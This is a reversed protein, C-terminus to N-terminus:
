RCTIEKNMWGGMRCAESRPGLLEELLPVVECEVTEGASLGHLLGRQPPKGADGLPPGRKAM